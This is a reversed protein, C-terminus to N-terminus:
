ERMLDDLRQRHKEGADFEFNIAPLNGARVEKRLYDRFDDRHRALFSLAPGQKEDPFVSVFVTAHKGDSSLEARTPTILAERGAERAIFMGAHHVLLSLIREDRISM